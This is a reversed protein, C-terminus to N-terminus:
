PWRREVVYTGHVIRCGFPLVCAAGRGASSDVIAQGFCTCIGPPDTRRVASKTALLQVTMQRVLNDHMTKRNGFTTLTVKYAFKTM